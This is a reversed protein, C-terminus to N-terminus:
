SWWLIFPIDDPLADIFAKIAKNYSSVDQPLKLRKLQQAYVFTLESGYSDERTRRLGEEGYVHVWMQPPLPHTKIVPEKDDIKILQGFVEYDRDFRLKDSVFVSTSGVEQPGSLPFITLDLGM